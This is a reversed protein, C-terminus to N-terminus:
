SLKRRNHPGSCLEFDAPVIKQGTAQAADQWAVPHFKGALQFMVKGIIKAKSPPNHGGFKGM